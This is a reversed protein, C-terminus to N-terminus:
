RAPDAGSDVRFIGHTLHINQGDVWLKLAAADTVGEHVVTVVPRSCGAHGHHHDFRAAVRPM